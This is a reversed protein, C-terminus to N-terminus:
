SKKIESSDLRMCFFAVILLTMGAGVRTPVITEDGVMLGLAIILCMIQTVVISALRISKM